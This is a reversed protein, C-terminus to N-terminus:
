TSTSPAVSTSSQYMAIVHELEAAIAPEPTAFSRPCTPWAWHPLADAVHELPVHRKLLKM